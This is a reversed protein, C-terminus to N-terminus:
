LIKVIWAAPFKPNPFAVPGEFPEHYTPAFLNEGILVVAHMNTM